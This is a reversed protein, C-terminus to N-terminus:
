FSTDKKINIHAIPDMVIGLKIM